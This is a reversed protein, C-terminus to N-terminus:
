ACLASKYGMASYLPLLPSPVAYMDISLLDISPPVTPGWTGAYPPHNPDFPQHGDCSGNLTLSITAM